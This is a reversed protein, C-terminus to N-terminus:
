ELDCDHSFSTQAFCHQEKPTHNHSFLICGVVLALVLAALVEISPAKM